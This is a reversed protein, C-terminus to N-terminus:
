PVNGIPTNCTASDDTPTMLEQAKVYSGRSNDTRIPRLWLRGQSVGIAQPKISVVGVFGGLIPPNGSTNGATIQVARAVRGSAASLTVNETQPGQPSGAAQPTSYQDSADPDSVWVEFGTITGSVNFKFKYNTVTGAAGFCYFAQARVNSISGTPPPPEIIICGSLALGLGALAILRKM